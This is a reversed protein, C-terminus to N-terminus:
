QELRHRAGLAPEIDAGINEAVILEAAFRDVPHDVADAAAHANAQQEVADARDLQGPRKESSETPPRRRL